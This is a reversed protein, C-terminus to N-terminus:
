TWLRERTWFVRFPNFVYERM